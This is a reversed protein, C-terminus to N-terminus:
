RLTTKAGAISIIDDVEVPTIKDGSRILYRLLPAPRSPPSVM